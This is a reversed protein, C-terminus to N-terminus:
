YEMGYESYLINFLLHSCNQATCFDLFVNQLVVEKFPLFSAPEGWPQYQQHVQRQGGLLVTTRAALCTRWALFTRFTLSPM